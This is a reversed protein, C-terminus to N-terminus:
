YKKGKRCRVLGYGNFPYYVMRNIDEKKSTDKKATDPKAVYASSYLMNWTVPEGNAVYGTGVWTNGSIIGTLYNVKSSDAKSSWSFNVSNNLINVKADTKATDGPSKLTASLKGPKGGIEVTYERTQGPRKITLKYNGRYDSWGGEDLIFKRGQIWNQLFVTSDEFVPGTTIIFNAWKGADLSGLKDYVGILTAPTRTLADLAKAGSLGNEIAKHVNQLFDKASTGSATLAFNLGEKEFMGPELPAMEWHKMVSLAVLRAANPDEVDVADPFNLPLIFSAKTRKMEDMRQYENGGGRIIYPVGFESGLKQARLVNWKDAADFIQPLSLNSNWAELSLNTGEGNTKDKQAPPLNKYWQADLYTQRLLAIAGMLSTPYDQTSSGKNFSYFAAAKDKLMNINEKDNSLTVLTGTGRAIGDQVHSVVAGFGMSRLDKAKDENVKFLKSADTEPKVAQNWGYAGKTNSYMQQSFGSGSRQPQEQAAVGYDSYLDIFSPYIYKGACDIVAADKPVAGGSEISIIKGEKILLTANPITTKSDKVVMAHTFAFYGARYDHVGNVPYTEQASATIFLCLCWILLRYKKM